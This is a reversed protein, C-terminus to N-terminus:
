VCSAELTSMVCLSHIQTLQRSLGEVHDGDTDGHRQPHSSIPAWKRKQPTEGDILDIMIRRSCIVSSQPGPVSAVVTFQFSQVNRWGNVGPYVMKVHRSCSWPWASSAPPPLVPLQGPQPLSEQPYLAPSPGLAQVPFQPSVLLAADGQSVSISFLLSLGRSHQFCSAPTVLGTVVVHTM